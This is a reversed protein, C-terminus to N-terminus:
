KRYSVIRYFFQFHLAVFKVKKVEDVDDVTLKNRGLESTVKVKKDVKVTLM